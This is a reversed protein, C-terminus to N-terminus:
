VFVTKDPVVWDNDEVTQTMDDTVDISVRAGYKNSRWGYGGCFVSRFDDCVLKGDRLEFTGDSTQIKSGEKLTSVKATRGRYDIKRDALDPRLETLEQYMDPMNIKLQEIIDPVNKRQYEKIEDGGIITQPRYDCIKSLVSADVMDKPVFSVSSKGFRNCIYLSKGIQSSYYPREDRVEIAACPIVFLMHEGVDNVYTKGTDVAKLMGYAPNERVNRNFESYKLARRTYGKAHNVKGYPCESRDLLRRVCACRGIKRLPCEDPIECWIEDVETAHRKGDGYLMVNVLEM